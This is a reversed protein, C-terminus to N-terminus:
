SRLKSVANLLVDAAAEPSRGVRTECFASVVARSFELADPGPRAIMAPGDPRLLSEVASTAQRARDLEERVETATVESPERIRGIRDVDVYLGRLKLRDVDESFAQARDLIDAVDSLPM